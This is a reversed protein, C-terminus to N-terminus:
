DEVPINKEIWDAIKGFSWQNDNMEALSRQNEMSLDVSRSFLEPLFTKSCYEGDTVDFAKSLSWPIEFNTEDSIECLVGLCCHAIGGDDLLCKLSGSGQKYDGSRLAKCWKDRLKRKM